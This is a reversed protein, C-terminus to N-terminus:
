GAAQMPRAAAPKAPPVAQPVLTKRLVEDRPGCAQMTGDRMVLVRDLAALASPRHAVVIVVGGRARVGKIAETLAAEGEADLSSNPEDLVVVFPDGYGDRPCRGGAAPERRFSRQIV